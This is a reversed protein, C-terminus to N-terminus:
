RYTNGADSTHSGTTQADVDLPLPNWADIPITGRRYGHENLLHGSLKATWLAIARDAIVVSPALESVRTELEQLDNVSRVWAIVLLNHRGTIGACLRVDQMGAIRRATTEVSHSSVQAWLVATVPRESLPRAVECRLHVAKAALLASVRRGATDPSTGCREALTAYSARGDASLAVMVRRDLESLTLPGTSEGVPRNEALQAAQATTLSRRRWRSGETYISGAVETRSATVAPFSALTHTIWHSLTALDPAMVTLLLDRDGTVHEVTTVMPLRALQEAAEALRGGACDVEVFALCGHGAEAMAPGPYCSIWAAGDDTLRKWHRALTVADLDLVKAIRAWSARPSIQLAHVLASDVEDLIKYEKM